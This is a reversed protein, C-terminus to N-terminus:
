RRQTNPELDDVSGAESTGPLGTLLEDGRGAEAGREAPERCGLWGPARGARCAPGPRWGEPRGGGVALARGPELILVDDQAEDKELVNGVGKFLLAGPQHGLAGLAGVRLVRVLVAGLVSRTSQM